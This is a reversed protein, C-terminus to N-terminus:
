LHVHVCVRMGVHACVQVCVANVGVTYAGVLMHLYVVWGGVCVSVCVCM